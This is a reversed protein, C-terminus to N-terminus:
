NVTVTIWEHRDRVRVVFLESLHAKAEALSSGPVITMFLILGEESTWLLHDM